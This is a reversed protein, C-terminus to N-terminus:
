TAACLAEVSDLWWLWFARRADKNGKKEWVAGGAAAISALLAADFEEPEVDRDTVNLDVVEPLLEDQMAVLMLQSAAYGVMIAPQLDEHDCALDDFYTWNEHWGAMVEKHKLEGAIVADAVKLLQHPAEDDPFAGDWVPLVRSMSARALRYRLLHPESEKKSRPSKRPGMALWVQHRYGLLLDGKRHSGVAKRAAALAESLQEHPM